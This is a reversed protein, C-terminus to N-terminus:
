AEEQASLGETSSGLGNVLPSLTNIMGVALGLQNLVITTLMGFHFFLVGSMAIIGPIITIALNRELNQELRQASDFLRGVQSLGGNMLIIAASDTAMTAAGRLSISVHAQKLAIADNIGDGVYCVTRGETQLEKILAAKDQPLVNAFYHDIGLEEALKQTPAEQDGSIIFVSCMAHQRLAQIIGKAEPRVTAHLELAGALEENVAVMTLSRGQQACAALHQQAQPSLTINELAIFRASGVCVRQEDITVKLGYGVKYSAEQIEPLRLRRVRAEQLIARAIPHTQKEEAAAAYRLLDDATYGNYTHIAGVHPQEDTLTGTKDFVITDVKTLLELARGDKVLIGHHAVLNLYNLMAIPALIRLNYGFNANMLAIVRIPTFGALLALAGVGLMPGATRDAIAEGRAHMTMRYDATHLLIQSIQAVTTDQGSKEVKIDIQGNLVVTAAYVSDGVEKELPQAEGTLIHQDISAIGAVIRGDVPITEGVSVVLIDGLQVDTLPTEVEVGDKRVWVWRQQQGFLDILSKRSRDETKLVLKKSLLQLFAAFACLSFHGTLILTADFILDLATIGIRREKVFTTYVSKLFAPGIAYLILLVTVPSLMPYVWGAVSFGLAASVITLRQNVAKEEASIVLPADSAAMDQLQQRRVRGSVLALINRRPSKVTDQRHPASVPEGAPPPMTLVEIFPQHRANRRQLHWWRTVKWVCKQLHQEIINGVAGMASSQNFM